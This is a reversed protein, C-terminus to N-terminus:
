LTPNHGHTEVSPAKGVGLHGLVDINHTRAKVLCSKEERRLRRNQESTKQKRGFRTMGFRMMEFRKIALMGM